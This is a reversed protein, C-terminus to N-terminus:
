RKWWKSTLAEAGGKMKQVLEPIGSLGAKRALPL